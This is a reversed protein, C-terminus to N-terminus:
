LALFRTKAVSGTVIPPQSGTVIIPAQSGTPTAEAAVEAALAPDLTLAAVATFSLARVLTWMASHNGRCKMESTRETVETDDDREPHPLAGIRHQRRTEPAQDGTANEVM